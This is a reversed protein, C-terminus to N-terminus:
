AAERRGSLFTLTLGGRRPPSSTHNVYLGFKRGGGKGKLTTEGRAASERKGRAPSFVESQEEKKEKPITQVKGKGRVEAYLFKTYIPTKKVKKKGRKKWDTGKGRSRSKKEERTPGVHWRLNGRSAVAKKEKEGGKANGRENPWPQFTKKKAEARGETGCLSIAMRREVGSRSNEKGEKREWSYRTIPPPPNKESDAKKEPHRELSLNKERPKEKDGKGLDVPFGVGRKRKHWRRLFFAKEGKKQRQTQVKKRGKKGRPEGSYQVLCRITAEKGRQCACSAAEKKKRGKKREPLSKMPRAYVTTDKRLCVKKKGGKKEAKKQSAPPPGPPLKKERERQCGNGTTALGRERPGGFNSRIPGGGGGQKSSPYVKTKKKKKKKEDVWRV